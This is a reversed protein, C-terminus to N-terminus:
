GCHAHATSCRFLSIQAITREAACFHSIVVSGDNFGAIIFDVSIVVSSFKVDPSHSILGRIV